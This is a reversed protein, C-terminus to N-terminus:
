KSLALTLQALSLPFGLCTGHQRCLARRPARVWSGRPRSRLRPSVSLRRVWGPAGRPPRKFVRGDTHRPGQTRGPLVSYFNRKQTHKGREAVRGMFAPPPPPTPVDQGSKGREDTGPCLAQKINSRRPAPLGPNSDQGQGRRAPHDKPLQKVGRHRQKRM